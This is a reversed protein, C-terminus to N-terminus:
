ENSNSRHNSQLVSLITVHDIYPKIRQLTYKIEKGNQTCLM